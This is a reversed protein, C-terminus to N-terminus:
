TRSSTLLWARREGLRMLAKSFQQVMTRRHLFSPIGTVQLLSAWKMVSTPLVLWMEGTNSAM